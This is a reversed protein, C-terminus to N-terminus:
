EKVAGETLATVIRRQFVLAVLVLPIAAIVSAAAIEGWPEVRSTAFLSIAVPVTRKEPSSTFTLAYLFENYAFVFVLIATSAVGPAALPLGIRWWAQLPTCGDIRASDYVADPIERFFRTLVFIALPLAFTTYSLVLALLTDRLGFARMVLYLPSVTAIPPFMSIALAGGLLWNKGRLRLKALAFAALSGIAISTCTTAAAVFASNLLSVGIARGQWVRVYNDFSTMPADGAEGAEPRLSTVIQSAFPGLCFALVLAAALWAFFPRRM